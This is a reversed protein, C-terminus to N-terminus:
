SATEKRRRPRRHGPTEVPARLGAAGFTVLRRVIADDDSTPLSVGSLAALRDAGTWTHIMAGKMFHLRWVLEDEPLEPVARAIARFVRRFLPAAEACKKLTADPEAHMRGVMRMFGPNERWLRITPAFVAHLIAELTPPSDGAEAEAAELLRLREENLPLLRREIVARVLADKSDFHYTIAGLNARAATVIDRVSTTAVGREAFLREAHDLLRTKTSRTV